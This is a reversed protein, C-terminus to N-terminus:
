SKESLVEGVLSKIMDSERKKKDKRSKKNISSISRKKKRGTKNRLINPKKPSWGKYIIIKIM